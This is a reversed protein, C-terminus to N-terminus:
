QRMIETATVCGDGDCDKGNPYHREYRTVVESLEGLSEGNESSVAVRYVDGARTESPRLDFTVAVTCSAECIANVVFPVEGHNVLGGDTPVLDTGCRDNFCATVRVRQLAQNAFDLSVVHAPGCGILTCAREEGCGVVALLVFVALGAMLSRAM